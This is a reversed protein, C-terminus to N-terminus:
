LLKESCRKLMDLNGKYNTTAAPMRGWTMREKESTIRQLGAVKTM